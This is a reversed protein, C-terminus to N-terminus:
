ACLMILAHMCASLADDMSTRVAQDKEIYTLCVCAGDFDVSLLLRGQRTFLLVDTGEEVAHM